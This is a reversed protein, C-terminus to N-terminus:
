LAQSRGADTVRAEDVSSLWSAFKGLRGHVLDFYRKQLMLTMQGPAGSGIRRRDLERVPTVEAATGTMFMEEAAYAEDRSIRKEVVEIGEDRALAFITDRTIGPLIGQTSPTYLVGDRVCFVNEGSGECCYGDSDLMLAEDYGDDIAESLAMMSNVYHGNVKARSMQSNAHARCYSSTKVRIGMRISEDGLYSGWAWAIVATHVRLNKAHLGMEQSGYFAIPRIYASDLQNRLVVEKQAQDIEAPSHPIAMNMIHASEFLRRTHDSLRFIQTGADTPYARVGEFVGLGYHLTHTCLHVQAERWPLWQGDFWIWGDRDSYDQTPLM